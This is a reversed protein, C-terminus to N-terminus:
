CTALCMAAFLCAFCAAAAGAAVPLVLWRTRVATRLLVGVYVDRSFCSGYAAARFLIACKSM